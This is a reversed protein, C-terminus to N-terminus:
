KQFIRHRKKITFQIRPNSGHLEDDQFVHILETEIVLDLEQQHYEIGVFASDFATEEKDNAPQGTQIASLHNLGTTLYVEDAFTLCPIMSLTLLLYKLSTM